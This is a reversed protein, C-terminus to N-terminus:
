RYIDDELTKKNFPALGKKKLQMQASRIAGRIDNLTAPKTLYDNMGANKCTERDFKDAYATIAIIYPREKNALNERIALTTRIGDFVPMQLDMFILDYPRIELTEIAEKGNTVMDARYGLRNLMLQLLKRNVVDDDVILISLNSICENDQM